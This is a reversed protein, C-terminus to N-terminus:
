HDSNVPMSPGPVSQFLGAWFSAVLDEFTLVVGGLLPERKQSAFHGEVEEPEVTVMMLWALALDGVQKYQISILIVLHICPRPPSHSCASHAYINQSSWITSPKTHTNSSNHHREAAHSAREQERRCRLRGKKSWSSSPTSKSDSMVTSYLLLCLKSM